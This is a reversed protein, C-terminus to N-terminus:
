WGRMQEEVLSCVIHGIMIHVEQVRASSTHPVNLHHQVMAGLQGGDRGTFGATVLGTERAAATALLVNPSNGSTSIGIALDGRRGLARIQRAFVQEFGYDNGIATLISSDTTLALAPLPGRERGFRGVLEAAIHQADAASGGNGYLLVKGGNELLTRVTEALISIRAENAAFFAKKLELSEAVANRISEIM